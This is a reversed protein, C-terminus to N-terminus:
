EIQLPKSQVQKIFYKLRVQEEDPMLPADSEIVTTTAQACNDSVTNAM